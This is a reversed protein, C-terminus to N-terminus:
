SADTTEKAKERYRQTETTIGVRRGQASSDYAALTMALATRGERATAIPGREGRMFAALPEALAAIREAHNAPSAIDSVHWADEGAIYWKLGIGGPPRPVNCSPADGFNQIIAGEEGVIETTNEGATCTFSCTLEAFTGDAYRYIAVGNDDPVSANHLTDIEAMVSAPEGLLWLLFDVAHAADDAWMGRNLEPKVHWSQTFWEGWQHTSLGHRRRVSFVRGIAGSAILEKMKVNQPDVRMQWAMTFPVKAVDVAAIIRDAEDLTLAMPKQLIITRGAEAALEVLEAHRSTEAGIVVAQVDDRALLTAADTEADLKLATAADKLREIDHDWAAAVRIGLARQARWASAYARVHGHALGLIGVGVAM